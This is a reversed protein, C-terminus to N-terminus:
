VQTPCVILTTHDQDDSRYAVNSQEQDKKDRKYCRYQYAVWVLAGLLISGMMVGGIIKLSIHLTDVLKFNLGSRTDIGCGFSEVLFGISFFLSVVFIRLPSNEIIEISRNNNKKQDSKIQKLRAKKQDAVIIEAMDYIKTWDNELPQHVFRCNICWLKPKYDEEGFIIIYTNRTYIDIINHRLAVKHLITNNQGNIYNILYLINKQTLLFISSCDKLTSGCAIKKVALNVTIENQFWQKDKKYFVFLVTKNNEINKNKALIIICNDETLIMQKIEINEKLQHHKLTYFKNSSNRQLICVKSYEGQKTLLLVNSSSATIKIVDDHETWKDFQIINKKFKGIWLENNQLLICIRRNTCVIQKINWSDTTQEFLHIQKNPNNIVKEINSLKDFRFRDLYVLVIRNAVLFVQQISSSDEIQLCNLLDYSRTIHSRMPDQKSFFLKGDYPKKVGDGNYCREFMLLRLPLTATAILPTYSFRQQYYFYIIDNIAKPILNNENEYKQRIYGSVLLLISYQPVM